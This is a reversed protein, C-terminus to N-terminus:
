YVRSDVYNSDINITVGGHTEKHGGRYQKIRRHPRWLEYPIYPHTYAPKGDWHAFWIVSPRRIGKARALDRIGSGISSYVGSVYKLSKLKVSWHHLFVLVAKRCSADSSRYAELNYYIPRGKPIGLAKADRVADVAASRGQAAASRSSIKVR